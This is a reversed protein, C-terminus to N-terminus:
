RGWRHMARPDLWRGPAVHQGAHGRDLTCRVGHFVFLGSARRYARCRTM